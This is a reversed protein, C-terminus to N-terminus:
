ADWKAAMRQEETPKETWCRWTKNYEDAWFGHHYQNKYSAKVNPQWTIFDWQTQRINILIGKLLLWNRDEAWVLGDADAIKNQPMVKALPEQEKM